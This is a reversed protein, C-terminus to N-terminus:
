EIVIEKSIPTYLVARDITLTFSSQEPDVGTFKLVQHFEAGNNGAVKELNTEIGKEWVYIKGNGDILSAKMISEVPSDMVPLKITVDDQNKEIKIIEWKRDKVSVTKPYHEDLKVSLTLNPSCIEKLDQIIIKAPKDPYTLPFMWQGKDGSIRWSNTAYERGQRDTLLISGFGKVSGELEMNAEGGQGSTGSSIVKGAQGTGHDSTKLEFNVITDSLTTVVDKIRIAGNQGIIDENITWKIENAKAKDKDVYFSTKWPGAIRKNDSLSMEKISVEIKSFPGKLPEFEWIGTTRKNEEDYKSTGSHARLELGAISTARLSPSDPMEKIDKPWDISYFIVTRNAGAVVEHVTFTIGLHTVSKDVLQGAEGEIANVLGKDILGLEILEQVVPIKHLYYAATSSVNIVAFFMVLAATATITMKIFNSRFLKNKKREGALARHLRDEIDVPATMEKRESDFGKNMVLSMKKLLEYEDKCAHCGRIHKMIEEKQKSNLNEELLDMIKEQIDSCKM